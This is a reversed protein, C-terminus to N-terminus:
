RWGSRSLPAAGGGRAGPRPRAPSAPPSRPRAAAARRRAAAPGTPESADAGRAGKRFISSRGAFRQVFLREDDSSPPSSSGRSASRQAAPTSYQELFANYNIRGDSYGDLRRALKRLLKREITDPLLDALTSVFNDVTLTGEEDADMCCFVAYARERRESLSARVERMLKQMAAEAAAPAYSPHFLDDEILGLARIAQQRVKQLIEKTSEASLTGRTFSRLASELATVNHSSISISGKLIGLLLQLDRADIIKKDLLNFLVQSLTEDYEYTHTKQVQLERISDLILRRDSEEFVRLEVLDFDCIHILLDGSSVGNLEFSTVYQSLGLSVLWNSVHEQTTMTELMM